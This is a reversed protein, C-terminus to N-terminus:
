MARSLRKQGCHPAGCAKIQVAQPFAL